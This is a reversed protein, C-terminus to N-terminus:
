WGRRGDRRRFETREYESGEPWILGTRVALEDVEGPAIGQDEIWDRWRAVAFSWYLWAFATFLLAAFTIGIVMLWLPAGTTALYGAFCGAGIILAVPLTVFIHGIIVATVPQPKGM